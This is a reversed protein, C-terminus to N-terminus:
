RLKLLIHKLKDLARGRHSISNKVADPLEALHKRGYGDPIFIPDYGFGNGGCRSFAIQGECTGSASYEEGEPSRLVAAAVFRAGRKETPVNRLEALLKNIRERSSSAYRASFVGPRGGLADVEIGSDDALSWLGSIRAWYSSKIRANEMYTTGTEKPEAYGPFCATTFFQLSADALIACIEEVKGMNGTALLIPTMPRVDKELEPFSSEGPRISVHGGIIRIRDRTFLDIAQPLARHEETLLRQSLSDEDDNLLVPVARQLIIPGGDMASTVFHVTCGTIRVRQLLAQRQANIGAFAPLLSPHINIMRAAFEEVFAPTLLRMYGALVVLEVKEARLIRAIVADHSARDGKYERHDVVRVPVGFENAVELAAAQPENCVVVRIEARTLKGARHAELIARLNSGRGSVLIAIKMQEPAQPPLEEEIDHVTDTM